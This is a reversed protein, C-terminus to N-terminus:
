WRHGCHGTFRAEQAPDWYNANRFREPDHNETGAWALAIKCLLNWDSRVSERRAIQWHLAEGSHELEALQHLLTRTREQVVLHLAHVTRKAEDLEVTDKGVVPEIKSSLFSSLARVDEPTIDKAYRTEQVALAADPM